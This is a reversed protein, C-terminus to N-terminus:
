SESEDSEPQPVNKIRKWKDHGQMVFISGDDCLAYLSHVHDNESVSESTAIQIVKRKM